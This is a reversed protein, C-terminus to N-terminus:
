RIDFSGSSNRVIFTGHGVYQLEVSDHQRASIYGATGASTSAAPTATSTYIQGDHAVAVLRTGDASSSVSTWIRDADRTTWTLGSDTSIRLQGIGPAVLRTGDASSAVVNLSTGAANAPLQQKWTSGSDNSIFLSGDGGFFEGGTVALRSCDSSCTIGWLGSGGPPNAKQSWTKGANTSIYIAPATSAVVITNGDASLDVTSVIGLSEHPLQAVEWTEGWDRSIHVGDGHRRVAALHQGDASSAVSTWPSADSGLPRPHAVWSVGADSSTYIFQEYAPVAVLHKGDSSSSVVSWRRSSDRATWSIGADTSTYINSGGEAVVVLKMGDASSAVSMWRMPTGAEDIKRATWTEGIRGGALNHTQITQGANQAIKWGGAGVGTVHIVDGLAPDAPLTVTVQDVNDALYGTNPKAQVATDTSHVWPLEASQEEACIYNTASVETTDLVGNANSDAGSTVKKGGHTCNAGAAEDVVKILSNLGPTGPAGNDGGGCATLLALAIASLSLPNIRTM